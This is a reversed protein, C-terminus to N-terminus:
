GPDVADHFGLRAYVREAPDNGRTVFLAIAPGGAACLGDMASALLATALGRGKAQAATMQYSVLPLGRWRMLVCAGAMRGDPAVAVLSEGPMAPGGSGARWDAIAAHATGIDDDPEFDITGTYADLMLVALAEDDGPLVARFALGDPAAPTGVTAAGGRDTAAVLYRREAM